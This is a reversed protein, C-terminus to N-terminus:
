KAFGETLAPPLPRLLHTARGQGCLRLLLVATQVRPDKRLADRVVQELGDLFRRYGELTKELHREVASHGM